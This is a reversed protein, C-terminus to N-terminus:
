RVVGNLQSLAALRGAIKPWTANEEYWKTLAETRTEIESGSIRGVEDASIGYCLPVEEQKESTVVACAHAAYAMFSSSKSWTTATVNTLAFRVRHLLKAIESESLAGHHVLATSFSELETQGRSFQETEPGILHLKSILGHEYWESIKSGYLTLTQARNFPLGFIVFETEVRSESVSPVLEINSSVPFWHITDRGSLKRLIAAHNDSNTAVADAITALQRIIRANIKAFLFQPSVRPLEGPVEHFFITLRGNPFKVKWKRLVGPLWVPCGYPQYARGAYHLLIEGAGVRDLARTLEKPDGHFDTIANWDLQARSAAAGEVVLFQAAASDNPRYKHALWSYTGVGCVLPPLRSTIVVAPLENM